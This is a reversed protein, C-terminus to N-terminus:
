ERLIERSVIQTNGTHKDRGKKREQPRVSRTALTEVNGRLVVIKYRSMSLANPTTHSQPVSSAASATASTSTSTSASAPIFTSVSATEASTDEENIEELTATSNKKLVGVTPMLTSTSTSVDAEPNHSILAVEDPLSIDDELSEEIVEGNREVLQKAKEKKQPKLTNNNKKTDDQAALASPLRYERGTELFYFLALLNYEALHHATKAHQKNRRLFLKKEKSEVGLSIFPSVIIDSWYGRVLVSSSSSNGSRSSGGKIGGGVGGVGGGSPRVNTKGERYSSFTRNPYTYNCLRKKAYCISFLLLLFFFM